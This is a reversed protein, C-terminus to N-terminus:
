SGAGQALEPFVLERWSGVESKILGTRRMYAAFLGLKTPATSFQVNPNALITDVFAPSLNSNDVKIFIRGAEARNAAIFDTAEKIADLVARYVKPNDTRFPDLAWVATTNSPGETIDFSSVVTHIGPQELEQDQFPVTAFHATVELRRSLLAAMADPHALSVQIPDFHDWKGYLKEAALGLLIAHQSTKLGPVAIRDEPTFDRLTKIAPKNTNLLIPQNGLASVLRAKGRTKDWLLVFPSPGASALEINGSLLQENLVAPSGLPLYRVRLSLGAARAHKEVLQQDQMVYLPLYGLGLQRGIRLEEIEARAPLAVALALWLGALAGRRRRGM